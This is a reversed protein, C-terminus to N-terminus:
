AEKENLTNQPDALRLRAQRVIQAFELCDDHTHDAMVQLRWRCANRAVAPYEVLNVIGGSDLM